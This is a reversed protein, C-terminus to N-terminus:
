EMAERFMAAIEDTSHQHRVLSRINGETDMVATVSSHDYAYQLASKPLEVKEYIAGYQRAVKDIEERSGTLGIINPHFNKVYSELVEPTDREPDVSILLVQMKDVEDKTLKNMAATLQALTTPCIDPCSTYGFYIAVVKGKFDHLSVPGHLSQLTFDGGYGSLYAPTKSTKYQTSIIGATVGAIVILALIIITRKLNSAQAM